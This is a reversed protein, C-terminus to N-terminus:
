TMIGIGTNTPFPVSAKDVAISLMEKINYDGYPCYGFLM